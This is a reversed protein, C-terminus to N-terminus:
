KIIPPLPFEKISDVQYFSPYVGHKKCWHDFLSVLQENLESEADSSVNPYDDAYEGAYDCAQNGMHEIVDSADPFFQSNSPRNVTGIYVHTHDGNNDDAAGYLAIEISDFTVSSFDEGNWSYCYETHNTSYVDSPVVGRLLWTLFHDAIILDDLLCACREVGGLLQDRRLQDGARCAVDAAAQYLAGSLELNRRRDKPSWFEPPFPWKSPPLVDSHKAYMYCDAAHEFVNSGLVDDRGQSWGDVTVQRQREAAILSHGTIHEM